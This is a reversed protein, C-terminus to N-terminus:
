SVMNGMEIWSVGVEKTVGRKRMLERVASVDVWKEHRASINSVTVYAFEDGAELETVKAAAVKALRLDGCGGCAGLLARWVVGCSGFGLEQIMKEAKWVEGHQGMLRIMSTLHETTPKIGYDDIMSVFYEFARQMPMRTHSCAALVNLFTIENPKLEKELKLEEFHQIVKNSKGNHAFGSLMTNWTVINKSPLSRFLLEANKVQGCKSYVDVLASGVVVSTDLSRKIACSHLLTGWTLASLGAIGSLISSLTYEDMDVGSGHMSTFFDLAKQARNRNVYGTIISNWSSSNPNPMSELVMVADEINGFLAIGSIVENYSITDPNPMQHFYQIALELRQHRVSAAIVSNWSFADKCVLFHFVHIAEELYSCKGYMDILCNAVLNSSEFGCIVVKSHISRGLWLLGLQSCGALAATFSFADATLESENLEIFVGLAKRFQGSHVYGSIMTNWSVVNRQPIEDFLKHADNFSVLKGYFSVLATSVYVDSAFGSRLIYCHLQEGCSVFGQKTCSRIMQVMKHGNPKGGNNLIQSPEFAAMVKHLAFQHSSSTQSTGFATSKTRYIERGVHNTRISDFLITLDSPVRRSQNRSRLHKDIASCFTRQM